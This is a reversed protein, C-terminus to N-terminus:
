PSSRTWEPEIATTRGDPSRMVVRRDEASEVTWGAHRDGPKLDTLGGSTRIVIRREAGWTDISEVTFPVTPPSEPVPVQRRVPKRATRVPQVPAARGQISKLREVEASLAALGSQLDVLQAQLRDIEERHTGLTREAEDFRHPDIPPQAPEANEPEPPVPPQPPLAIPEAPAEWEALFKPDAEEPSRGCGVLGLVLACAAVATTRSTLGHDPRM